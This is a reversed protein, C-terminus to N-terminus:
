GRVRATPEGLRAAVHLCADVVAPVFRDAALLPASHDADVEVVHAAPLAAALRRQRAPPVLDDRTTVVVAAPVDVDGIWRVSSFRALAAAAELLVAPDNHRLESAVWAELESGRHRARAVRAVVRRRWSVPALRVVAASGALAGVVPRFRRSPLFSAATACLVLGAVRHRHRHWLLQAVPGGMSYGVAVARGVGLADLVAAADDACDALRFPRPHRMSRGHGRHDVAVVRFWRGLAGYGTAWNLDATAGLGHLLLVAPAGPPGPVERVFVQGRGPLTLHRGPPLAPPRM